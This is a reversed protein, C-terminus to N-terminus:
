FWHRVQDHVSVTVHGENALGTCVLGVMMANYTEVTHSLLGFFASKADVQSNGKAYVDVIATGVIRDTDSM